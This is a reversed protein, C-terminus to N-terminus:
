QESLFATASARDIRVAEGIRRKVEVQGAKLLRESMVVRAPMGLLDADNFKVGATEERDDYLVDIGAHRLEDYLANAAARVEPKNGISLLHVHFPAIAHPWVIGAQDHHQEIIVQLLRELGIGYSGMVVPHTTGNQDLYVAGLAASFRTGLKFIHGIEIGRETTLPMGCRVCLDGARATAIDAVITAQWDRGYVVNRAHYGERNAGAVLLGANVVSQDAVVFVKQDAVSNVSNVSTYQINAKETNETSETALIALGVPSAYGPVAGAAMIQEATAPTLASVGAAARLKAENVELDGRVVAFVLGREPTDFFVAKATATEPVHLFAALEAITKCNPTAVEEMPRIVASSHRVQDQVQNGEDKAMHRKDQMAVAVEINAAYGCHQCLVLTDEGAASLAIYERPERGGMEGASAEVAVFRVGCHAFIREFATALQEYSRDLGAAAADLSYADLMTFERMRLLGGKTRLEDRYKTHIQYVIAPMQRYSTIERRALDAVAEEHTPAFILARDSRDRLRLMLPGYDAYRGSQEWAASSQIVPTRFEQADIQGLEDHMIAEIKRLVRMGLPLLAYGGALLQRALGARLVLQYAEHEADAPAERLTRGWLTSLRM